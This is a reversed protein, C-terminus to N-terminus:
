QSIRGLVFGILVGAAIGYLVAVFLGVVVERRSYTSAHHILLGTMCSWSM